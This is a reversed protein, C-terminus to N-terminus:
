FLSKKTSSQAKRNNVQPMELAPTTQEKTELSADHAPLVAAAVRVDAVSMHGPRRLNMQDTWPTRPTRNRRLRRAGESLERRAVAGRAPRLGPVDYTLAAHITRDIEIPCRHPLDPGEEKARLNRTDLEPSPIARVELHERLHQVASVRRPMRKAVKCGVHMPLPEQLRPSCCEAFSCLLEQEGSNTSRSLRSMSDACGFTRISDCRRGGVVAMPKPRPQPRTTGLIADAIRCM